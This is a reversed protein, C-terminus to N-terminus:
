SLSDKDELRYEQRNENFLDFVLDILLLAKLFDSKNKRFAEIFTLTRLLLEM